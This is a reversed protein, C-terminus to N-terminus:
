DERTPDMNNTIHSRATVIAFLMSRPDALQTHTSEIRVEGKIDHSLCLQDR